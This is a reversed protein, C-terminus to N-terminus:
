DDLFCEYQPKSVSDPIEDDWCRYHVWGDDPRSQSNKYIHCWYVEGNHRFVGNVVLTDVTYRRPENTSLVEGRKVIEEATDVDLLEAHATAWTTAVLAATLLTRKM